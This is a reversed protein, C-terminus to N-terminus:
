SRRRRMRQYVGHGVRKLQSKNELERLTSTITPRMSEYKADERGLADFIAKADFSESLGFGGVAEVIRDYMTPEARPASRRRSTIGKEKAMYGNYAREVREREQIAENLAKRAEAEKRKAEALQEELTHQFSPTDM